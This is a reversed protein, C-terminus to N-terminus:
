GEVFRSHGVDDPTIDGEYSLMAPGVGHHTPPNGAGTAYIEEGYTCRRAAGDYIAQRCSQDGAEVSFAAEVGSRVTALAFNVLGAAIMMDWIRAKGVTLNDIRTWDFGAGQMLPAVEVATQWAYFAPEAPQNYFAALKGDDGLDWWQLLTLGDYLVAARTVTIDEKLALLQADTTLPM